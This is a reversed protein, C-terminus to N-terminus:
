KSIRIRRSLHHSRGGCRAQWTTPHFMCIFWPTTDYQSRSVCVAEGQYIIRDGAAAHRDPQRTVCLFSDNLWTVDPIHTVCVCVSIIKSLHQLRAGCRAQWTTPRCRHRQGMGMGTHLIYDRKYPKKAFSVQLNIGNRHRDHLRAVCIDFPDTLGTMNPIDVVCVCM